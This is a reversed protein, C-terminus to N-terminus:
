NSSSGFGQEGRETSSLDKVETLNISPVEIFLLQGIKDGVNYKLSEKVYKFRFKIEGRYDPDILGVSNALILGTKSISSRPLLLACYNPPMELSIGTLYEIFGYGREEVESVGTATIDYGASEYAKEPMKASENLLKIKIDIM